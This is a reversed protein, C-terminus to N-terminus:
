TMQGQSHSPRSALADTFIAKVNFSEGLSELHEYLSSLFIGFAFFNPHLSSKAQKCSLFIQHFSERFDKMKFSIETESGSGFQAKFLEAAHELNLEKLGNGYAAPDDLYFGRYISRMAQLFNDDWQMIWAGPKWNCEKSLYEFSTARLDIWALPLHMLQGFFLTLLIRGKEHKSISTLMESSSKDMRFNVPINLDDILKRIMAEEKPHKLKAYTKGLQTTQRAISLAPVVEFFVPSLYDMFHSWENGQIVRLFNGIM